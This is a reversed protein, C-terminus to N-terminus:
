IFEPVSLPDFDTWDGDVIQGNSRELYTGGASRLADITRQEEAPTSVSVAVLMGSKRLPPTDEADDTQSLSGMLSGVHAGVLAGAVAGLPGAVPTVALGAAGGIAGGVGLGAVSGKDSNEAGPSEDRDGGIPYLDHQGPPNVYFSSIQAAPAGAHQLAAIADQVEDQQAFRGAIITTM